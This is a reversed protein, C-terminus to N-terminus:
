FALVLYLLIYGRPQHYYFLLSTINTIYLFDYLSGCYLFLIYHLHYHQYYIYYSIISLSIFLQYLYDVM